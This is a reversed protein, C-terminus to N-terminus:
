DIAVLGRAARNMVRAGGRTVLLTDMVTVSGWGVVATRALDAHYGKLVCGVELRVLDGSRLARESPYPAPIASRQGAAVITCCPAAGRKVIREEYLTAAARETVGPELMQIVANAGDEAVHLGRELCEIEYPGKVM